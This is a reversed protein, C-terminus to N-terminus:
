SNPHAALIDLTTDSSAGDIVIHEYVPMDLGATDQADVSRLTPEITAEANYCVTIISILPNM